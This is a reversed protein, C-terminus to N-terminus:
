CRGEYRYYNSNCERYQCPQELQIYEKGNPHKGITINVYGEMNGYDKRNEAMEVIKKLQEITLRIM